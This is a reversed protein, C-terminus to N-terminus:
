IGFFLAAILVIVMLATQPPLAPMPKKWISVSYISILLGVFSAIACAGAVLANNSFPGNALVSATVILPIVLDGNGLEFRHKKSPLAITFAFNKKTVAKGIEVMHKTFFVAIIDYLALIIIFVLAPLLGLSIGIFAGAGIIAITGALDRIWVNERKWYRVYLLLITLLLAISDETPLFSSFVIISTSFIAIAEIVWLFKATRRLRLALVIIITMVIIIGFLYLGNEVDNVNQTIPAQALGQAFLSNAVFLGATQVIIFIATLLVIVEVSLWSESKGLKKEARKPKARSHKKAM